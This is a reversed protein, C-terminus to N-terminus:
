PTQQAIHGLGTEGRNAPPTSRGSVPPESSRGSLAARLDNEHAELWRVRALELTVKKIDGESLEEGKILRQYRGLARKLRKAVLLAPLAEVEAAELTNVRQYMRLFRSVVQLDLRVKYEQSDPDGYVKAFDHLAVALDLVRAELHSSDFDLMGIVRDGEFLASGRRCGAHITVVPLKPYLRDLADLAARGQELVYPISALLDEIRQDEDGNAAPVIPLSQPAPM